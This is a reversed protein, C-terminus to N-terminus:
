ADHHFGGNLAKRPIRREVPQALIDLAALKMMHAQRIGCHECPTRFGHQCCLMCSYQFCREAEARTASDQQLEAGICEFKTM